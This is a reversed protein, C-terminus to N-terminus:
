VLGRERLLEVSLYGIVLLFVCACVLIGIKFLYALRRTKHLEQNLRKSSSYELAAAARELDRTKENLSTLHQLRQTQLSSISREIGTQVDVARQNLRAVQENLPSPSRARPSLESRHLKVRSRTPFFWQALRNNRRSKSLNSLCQLENASSLTDKTEQQPDLFAGHSTPSRENM